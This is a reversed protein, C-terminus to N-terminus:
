AFSSTPPPLPSSFSHSPFQLSSPLFSVSVAFAFSFAASSAYFKRYFPWNQPNDHDTSSLMHGNIEDPMESKPQSNEHIM